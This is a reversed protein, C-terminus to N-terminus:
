CDAFSISGLKAPKPREVFSAIDQTWMGANDGMHGATGLRVTGVMGHRAVGHWVPGRMAKGWWLTGLRAMGLRGLRAEGRLATGLRM